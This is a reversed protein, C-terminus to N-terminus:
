ANANGRDGLGFHEQYAEWLAKFKWGPIKQELVFARDDEDLANDIFEEPSDWRALDRWELEGPDTFEIKRGAIVAIFPEKADERELADLNLTVDKVSRASGAAM